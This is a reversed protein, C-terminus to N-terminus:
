SMKKYAIYRVLKRPAFRQSFLLLSNKIGHNSTTKKAKMSKYIFKALDKSTPKNKFVTENANATEAFESQTAGPNIVTVVINKDKLEFALAESFSLVYAKTASYTAFNPIPQFAAMSAINIINGGGIKILDPIFLKCIKTLTVMNLLLMQEEKKIGADIFNGFYGIGANNILVNVRLNADTVKKFLEEASNLKSLDIKFVTVNINYQTELDKKIANLNELRRAVLILNYNNKAYVYATEKGIGVSAGTILATNKM